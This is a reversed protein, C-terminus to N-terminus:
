EIVIKEWNREIDYDDVRLNEIFKNINGKAKLYAYVLVKLPINNSERDDDNRSMISMALWDFVKYKAKTLDWVTQKLWIRTANFYDMTALITKLDDLDLKNTTGLEQKKGLNMVQNWLEKNYSM